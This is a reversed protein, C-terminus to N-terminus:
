DLAKNLKFFAIIVVFQNFLDFPNSKIVKKTLEKTLHLLQQDDLKNLVPKLQPSMEILFPEEHELKFEKILTMFQANESETSDRIFYSYSSFLYWYLIFILKSNYLSKMIFEIAERKRLIRVIRRSESGFLFKSPYGGEESQKMGEDELNKKGVINETIGRETFSKMIFTEEKTSIGKTKNGWESKSKTPDFTEWQSLNRLFVRLDEEFNKGAFKPNKTFESLVKIMLKARRSNSKKLFAKFFRKPPYRAM